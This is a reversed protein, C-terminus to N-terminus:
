DSAIGNLQLKLPRVSNFQNSMALCNKKLKKDTDIKYRKIKYVAFRSSSFSSM